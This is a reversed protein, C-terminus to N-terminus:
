PNAIVSVIMGPLVAFGLPEDNALILFNGATAANVTKGPLTWSISCAADARLLVFHTAANFAASPTSTSSITIHQDDVWGAANPHPLFAGDAPYQFESIYFLSM